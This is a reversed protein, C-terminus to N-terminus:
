EKDKLLREAVEKAWAGTFPNKVIENLYQEWSVDAAHKWIEFKQVVSAYAKKHLECYENRAERSCCKCRM